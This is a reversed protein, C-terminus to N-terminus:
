GGSPQEWHQAGLVVTGRPNPFGGLVPRGLGKPSVRDSQGTLLPFGGPAGLFLNKPGGKGWKFIYPGRFSGCFLPGFILVRFVRPVATFVKSARYVWIM